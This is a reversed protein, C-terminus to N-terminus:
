LSSTAMPATFNQKYLEAALANVENDFRSYANLMVNYLTSNINSFRDEHSKIVRDADTIPTTVTKTKTSGDLQQIEMVEEKHTATNEELPSSYNFIQIQGEEDTTEISKLSSSVVYRYNVFKLHNVNAFGSDQSVKAVADAVADYEKVSLTNFSVVMAGDNIPYSCAYPTNSMLSRMFRERMEDTVAVKNIESMTNFVDKIAEERSEDSTDDKAPETEGLGLFKAYEEKKDEPLDEANIVHQEFNATDPQGPLPSRFENPDFTDSM